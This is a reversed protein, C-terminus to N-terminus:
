GHLKWCKDKGTGNQSLIVNGKKKKEKEVLEVKVKDFNRQSYSLICEKRTSSHKVIIIRRSEEGEISAYSQMLPLFPERGLIQARAEGYDQNLGAFFSFSKPM